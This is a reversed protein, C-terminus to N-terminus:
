KRVEAMIKRIESRSLFQRSLDVGAAEALADSLASRYDFYYINADVRRGVLRALTDAIEQLSYKRGADKKMLTAIQLSIFRILFNANVREEATCCGVPLWHEQKAAGFFKQTRWFGQCARILSLDEMDQESTVLYFFGDLDKDASVQNGDIRWVGKQQLASDEDRAQTPSNASGLAANMKESSPLDGFRPKYLEEIIVARESWNKEYLDRAWFAVGKMPLEVRVAQGAADRALITKSFLRSKVRLSDNGNSKYGSNDRIWAKLEGSAQRAPQMFIFGDGDLMLSTIASATNLGRNIVAVFRTGSAHPAHRSACTGSGSAAIGACADLGDAAWEAAGGRSSLYRRKLADMMAGKDGLSDPFVNFDLPVGSGDVLIGLHAISGSRIVGSADAARRGILSKDGCAHVDGLARASENACADEFAGEDEIANDYYYRSVGCFVRSTDRSGRAMELSARMHDVLADKNASLYGFCRCMDELSFRCARPYAAREEWIARKSDAGTLAGWTLLELIRCPDFSVPYGIRRREFFEGIGLDRYFYSGMVAAGLMVRSEEQPDIRKQPDLRLCISSGEQKAEENRRALEREWFAVPDPCDESILEDVYGLSEIHRSKTKGGERYNEGISLHVRGNARKSKRLYM